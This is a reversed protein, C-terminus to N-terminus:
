PLISVKLKIADLVTGSGWKSDLAALFPAYNALSVACLYDM